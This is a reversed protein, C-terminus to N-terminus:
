SSRSIRWNAPSTFQENAISCESIQNFDLNIYKIDILQQLQQSTNVGCILKDIDTLQNVFNFALEIPSCHHARACNMLNHFKNKVPNFYDPIDAVKMALLGQLFVSRAHIEIGMSKLKKLTGSQLLGQDMINIPLQILDIDFHECIVNIQHQNYVSVGVKDIAGSAKLKQIEAFLKESGSKMLDDSNHFMLSFLCEQKLKDLSRKFSESLQLAHQSTITDDLFSPTKTVIAFDNGANLNGLEQEANGYSTSTDLLSIHNAKALNLIEAVAKKPTKGHRNNVGYDLGFQVTGLALKM